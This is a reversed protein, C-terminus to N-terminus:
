SRIEWPPITMPLIMQDMFKLDQILRQLFSVNRQCRTAAISVTEVVLANDRLKLADGTTLIVSCGIPKKEAHLSIIQETLRIEKDRGTQHESITASNQWVDEILTM